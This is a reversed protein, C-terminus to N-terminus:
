RVQTTVTFVDDPIEGDIATNRRIIDALTTGRLEDLLKPNALFFPDNEYWYRDGDRLRTFQDVIIAHFTEGVIAGEMHEEALGAPFLELRSIEDYIDELSEQVAAVPSVGGFAAVTDLGYALRVMNYSGLGHDRTRQINLAALDSGRTGAGGFLLNRVEDVVKLDIEEAPARALGRLFPSIGHTEILSPNFFAEALSTQSQRGDADIRLLHSPLMTHGVRFAATSFENAISPDTDPNYGHYPGIAGPGLLKPLFESYTIVQMQAGVIKRAIEYIEEGTLEPYLAAVEEALRNHERLFLTHLATLGVQENARVDGSLFLDSRSNGGDNDLANLNYPLFNGDGSTMLKGTGDGGMLAYARGRDSGYIQSADIFATLVNIQERPNDPGTGTGPDFQSRTFSLVSQGTRGRDFVPDGSPVPIPLSGASPGPPTHGIDHDVFQGWQWLMNSAQASNAISRSQDMADNSVTRASPLWDPPSATRDACSVTSGRLLQTHSRGWTPHDANNYRGDRSRMSLAPHPERLEVQITGGEVLDLFVDNWYFQRSNVQGDALNLAIGDMILCLSDVVEQFGPAVDLEVSVTEGDDTSSVLLNNVAYRKGRWSFGTTTLDGETEGAFTGYGLFDGAIGVTLAATWVKSDHVTVTARSVGGASVGAPLTVFSISFTGSAGEDVTVRFSKLTEGSAFTLSSPVGAVQSRNLGGGYSVSLPITIERMPEADLSLAVEAPIGHTATYSDSGFGVTLPGYITLPPPVDSLVTRGEGCIGGRFCPEGAVLQFVVPDDGSVALTFTYIRALGEAPSYVALADVRTVSGGAVRVSPTDARFAAVRRNFSISVRVESGAGTHFASTRDSEHVAGLPPNNQTLVPTPFLLAVASVAATFLLIFPAVSRPRM